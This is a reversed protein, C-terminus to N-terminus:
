QMLMVCPRLWCSQLCPRMSPHVRIECHKAVEEIAIPEFPRTILVKPKM